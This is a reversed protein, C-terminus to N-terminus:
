FTSLPFKLYSKIEHMPINVSPAGIVYPGIEYPNYQVFLGQATILFNENLAFENNEFDFHYDRLSLSRNKKDINQERFYKEAIQNLKKVDTFLDNLHLRQATLTSFVYHLDTSIGHAGGSYTSKTISLSVIEKFPHSIKIDLDLMWPLVLLANETERQFEKEFANCAKKVDETSFIPLSVNFEQFAINLHFLVHANITDHVPLVPKAFLQYKVSVETDLNSVVQFSDIQWNATDITSFSIEHNLKSSDPPLNKKEVVTNNKCALLYCYVVFFFSLQIISVKM